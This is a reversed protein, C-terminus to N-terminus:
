RRGFLLALAGIAAAPLAYDQWGGGAQQLSEKQEYAAVQAPTATTTSGDPCQFQFTKGIRVCKALDGLEDILGRMTEQRQAVVAPDLRAEIRVCRNYKRMAKNYASWRIKGNPRKFDNPRPKPACVSM